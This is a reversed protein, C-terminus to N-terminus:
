RGKLRELFAKKRTRALPIKSGDSLIVQGGERHLLRKVHDVNVLHSHHSRFFGCDNLLRDFEGLNRTVLMSSGGSMFVMSYRGEAKIHLIDRIPIFDLGESTPIALRTPRESKLNEELVRYRNTASLGAERMGKVRNVAQKLEQIDVPKLIYDVASFKFAKVAYQSHATVFIVDFNREPFFELIDFGSGLPMKIDLFVLDPEKERLLRIGKQISDAQGIVEVDPCHENLLMNLSDIINKEDDIILAQIM